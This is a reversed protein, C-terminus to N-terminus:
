QSFKRQHIFCCKRINWSKKFVKWSIEKGNPGTELELIKTSYFTAMTNSALLMHMHVSVYMYLLEMCMDCAGLAVCENKPPLFAGDMDLVGADGRTTYSCQRSSKASTSDCASASITGVLILVSPHWLTCFTSSEGRSSWTTVVWELMHRSSESFTSQFCSLVLRLLVLVLILVILLGLCSVLCVTHVVWEIFTHM